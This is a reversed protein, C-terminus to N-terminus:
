QGDRFCYFNAIIIYEYLLYIEGGGTSKLYPLASFHLLFPIDPFFLRVFQRHSKLICCSSPTIAISLKMLNGSIRENPLICENLIFKM